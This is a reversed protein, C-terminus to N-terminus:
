ATLAPDNMEREASEIAQRLLRVATPVHAALQPLRAHLKQLAEARNANILKRYWEIFAHSLTAEDFGPHSGPASVISESLLLGAACKPDNRYNAKKWFGIAESIDGNLVLAEARQAAIIPDGGV